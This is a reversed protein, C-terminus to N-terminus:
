LQKGKRELQQSLAAMDAGSKIEKSVFKTGAQSHCGDASPKMLDPIKKHVTLRQLIGNQGASVGNPAPHDLPILGELKRFAPNTM